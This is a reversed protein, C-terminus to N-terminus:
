TIREFDAVVKDHTKFYDAKFVKFEDAYEGDKFYELVKEISGITFSSSLSFVTGGLLPSRILKIESETDVFRLQSASSAGHVESSMSRYIPDYLDGYGMKNMLDRFSNVNCLKYWNNCKNLQNRKKDVEVFTPRKKVLANFALEKKKWASLVDANIIPKAQKKDADIQKEMMDKEEYLHHLYYASARYEVDMELIYEIYVTTEVLSRLILQAPLFACKSYLISIADLDEAVKRLLLTIITEVFGDSKGENILSILKSEVESVISILASFAVLSGEVVDGVEKNQSIGFFFSEYEKLYSFPRYEIVRKM